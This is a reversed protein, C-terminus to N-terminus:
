PSPGAAPEARLAFPGRYQNSLTLVRRAADTIAFMTNDPGGLRGGLNFRRAVAYYDQGPLDALPLLDAFTPLPLPAWLARFPVLNDTPMAPSMVVHIERGDGLGGHERFWLLDEVDAWQLACDPQLVYVHANAYPLGLPRGIAVIEEGVGAMSLRVPAADCAPLDGAFRGEPAFFWARAGPELTRGGVAMPEGFPNLVEFRAGSGMPVTFGLPAEPLGRPTPRATLEFRQMSRWDLQYVESGQALVDTISYEARTNSLLPGVRDAGPGPRAYLRLGQRCGVVLAEPTADAASVVCGVDLRQVAGTSLGVIAVGQSGLAVVMEDGHVRAGLPPGPLAITVAAGVDPIVRVGRRRDLAAVGGPVEVVHLFTGEAVRVAEGLSGDPLIPRRWLGRDVAALFLGDGHVAAGSIRGTAEDDLFARMRGTDADYRAIGPIWIGTCYVTASPAHLALQTCHVFRGAPQTDDSHFVRSLREGSARYRILGGFSNAVFVEGPRSPHVMFQKGHPTGGRDLPLDVAPGVPRLALSGAPALASCARAGADTARGGDAGADTARGGDGADRADAGGNGCGLLGLIALAGTRTAPRHTRPTRGVEVPNM